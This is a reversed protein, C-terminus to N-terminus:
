NKKDLFFDLNKILCDLEFNNRLFNNLNNKINQNFDILNKICVVGHL